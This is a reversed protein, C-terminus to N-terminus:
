PQKESLDREAGSAASSGPAPAARGAQPVPPPAGEDSPQLAAHVVRGEHTVLAGQTIADEKDIILAGDKMLHELFAAVNRAYLASADFAVSSAINTMGVVKVGDIKVERDAETVECNGGHSAALDVVVSGSRMSEVMERSVLRPAPRGPVLATTVVVDASKVHEAVIARQKALFDATMEKAYGGEGQGSAPEPLDIFRGGLSEVQEKVEPRIDSVHVVAGLRRATAVAQLGAVGAGMVVVKAPRITGAATMMQPFHRDLTSAAVLVAKYGACSAQSSLADMPQARTIRPIFEMALATVGKSALADVVERSRHPDLLGIVTAGAKCWHVEERTLPGVKLLVDADGWSAQGAPVASAGAEAYSAEAYNASGAAGAELQVSFGMKKLKAATEPTAAVRRELPAREKCVLLKM